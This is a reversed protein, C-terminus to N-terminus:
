FSIVLNTNHRQATMLFTLQVERTVTHWLLAYDKALGVKFGSLILIRGEMCVVLDEKCPAKDLKRGLTSFLTSPITPHIIFILSSHMQVAAYSLYGIKEM